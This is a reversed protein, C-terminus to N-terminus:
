DCSVTLLDVYGDANLDEPLTALQRVRGLRIENGYRTLDALKDGRRTLISLHMDGAAVLERGDPRWLSAFCGAGTMGPEDTGSAKYDFRYRSDTPSFTGDKQQLLILGKGAAYYIDPLHDGNLDRLAVGRIPGAFRDLELPERFKILPRAPFYYRGAAADVMMQMLREPAGNFTDVMEDGLAENWQWRTPQKLDIIKVDHWQSAAYLLVDQEHRRRLKGALAVVTDGKEVEDLLSDEDFDVEPVEITVQKPAFQGFCVKTVQLTVLGKDYDVDTAECGIVARHREILHSPQLQPNVLGVAASVSALVLGIALCTVCCYSTQHQCM